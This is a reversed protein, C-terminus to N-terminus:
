GAAAPVTGFACAHVPCNCWSSDCEDPLCIPLEAAQAGARMAGDLSDM